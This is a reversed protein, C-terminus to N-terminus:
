PWGKRRVLAVRRGARVFRAEITATVSPATGDIARITALWADPEATTLRLLTQYHATVSDRAFPSLLAAFPLIDPIREGRARLELVREVAESTFGPLSALVPASAHALAVRGPEVGLLNRAEPYQDL